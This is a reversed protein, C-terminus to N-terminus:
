REQKSLGFWAIIIFGVFFGALALHNPWLQNFELAKTFSGISIQQFWLSPFFLGLWKGSGTISSLPTLLGSFNVAPLISLVASAFLAAVQTKTFTSILVGFGTTAGVYLLAGFSLTLLSGKVTVSFVSYAILLLTLYSVFAICLYPVQKGLLFEIRTVPTSYFNAISGSEKERVIGMATMMAPILALMLMIIGPVMAYVSEFSQNFYFRTIVNAPVSLSNNSQSGELALAQLEQLLVGNVYGSATEAIFPMAGDIQISLQPQLGQILDRGFSPPIEILLTINGRRIQELGDHYNAPSDQEIFYRSGSLSEMLRRSEHSQDLDIVAYKLDQVDFSIGFGFALLLIIPGFLAFALRIPDRQIELLERWTYAWWRRFSTKAASEKKTSSSLQHNNTEIIRAKTAPATADAIETLYNVFAVELSTVGKAAALEKPTGVALVKGAHMLSIRDCQEAENMFHTSIFITVGDRRSLQILHNWFQDRAIPDVGSTPEDLILIAPKHLVAVALQLRQRMGLPLSEPLSNRVHTLGFEELVQEIRSKAQDGLEYLQAHLQLNQLVSIEGYLSFGQSMYGVKKRTALDNADPLQGLITAEGTTFPILGTLMKMTTSKGCGNSGLFGFIEGRHIKFSVDDVAVFDGFKCTLHNAVIAPNNADLVIPPVIVQTHKARKKAPLLAIFAQELTDTQTQTLLEDPKGTAIIQGDDLAALWDFQQAEDMYATAVIVSMQPHQHRIEQILQWFQQRSLPDVGTTPEDLLLLDPDHILACCLGLKQKMGGSLKGAPRDLFPALGTAQTLAKIRQERESKSQGFLRGFFDLNEAISLTPYLNKGLGQPMYAIRPQVGQREKHVSMDSDLVILQGQQLKRVGAILSLLTSKGVGDPGILGAMIGRPIAISIPKLAVVADYNHAINQVSVVPELRSLETQIM